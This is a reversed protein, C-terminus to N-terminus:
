RPSMGGAAAKQRVLEIRPGITANTPDLRRAQELANLETAFLGATEAADALALFRAASSDERAARELSTVALQHEARAARVSAVWAHADACGDHEACAASTFADLAGGLAESKPREKSITEALLRFCRAQEEPRNCGKQLITIAGDVDAQVLALRARALVEKTSRPAFKALAAAHAEIERACQDRDVCLYSPEASLAALRAAIFRERPGALSADRALAEEDLRERAALDEPRSLSRALLDLLPAGKPGEPVALLMMDVDSTLPAVVRSVAQALGPEYTAALKLELLAQRVYGYDALVEGLLLHTRGIRPGRELARQIWPIPSKREFRAAMAGVLPFYYDAPHRKSMAIVAEDLSASASPDKARRDLLAHVRARDEALTSVGRSIALVGALGGIAIGARLVWPTWTRKVRHDGRPRVQAWLSGLVAAVATGVGGLELGLDVLNQALLTGVGCLAGLAVISRHALVRTPWFCWLSVSGGVLAVPVGWESAWQVVFNEPHSFTEHLATEPRYAQFVSEFSGRGVGFWLHDKILPISAKPLQLKQTDESLLDSWFASDAGVIAFAGGAVLVGLSAYIAIKAPIRQTSRTLVACLAFVALGAALAIVGGRSATRLSVAVITLLGLAVTWSSVVTRKTLVLGLGILAGLNLYGALNNPNIFPGAHGPSVPTDPTYLGFVTKAGVMGHALSVLAIAVSAGFVVTLGVVPGRRRSAVAALFFTASYSSWKFAEFTSASPDLSLSGRDVPTGVPLLCRSWVDASSPSLKTLWGVPLPLTQLLTFAGLASLTAIPLLGIRGADGHFSTAVAAALIFFGVPLYLRPVAGGILLASAVVGLGLAAVILRDRDVTVGGGDRPTRRRSSRPFSDRARRESTADASGDRHSVTM